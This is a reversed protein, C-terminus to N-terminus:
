FSPKLVALGIAVSSLILIVGYHIAVFKPKKKITFAVLGLLIWCATKAQAWSPFNEHMGLVGVLKFATVFVLIWSIGHTIFGWKRLANKGGIWCGGIIFGLSVVLAAISIIHLTKYTLYEM